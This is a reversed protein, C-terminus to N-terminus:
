HSLERRKTELATPTGATRNIEEARQLFELAEQEQPSGARTTPQPYSKSAAGSSAFSQPSMPAGTSADFEQMPKSPSLSSMTVYGTKGQSTTVKHLVKNKESPGLWTVAEGAQLTAIKASKATADKLVPTDKARVYLQDGINVAFALSSSMVLALAFLRM